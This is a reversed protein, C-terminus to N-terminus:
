GPWWKFQQQTFVFRWDICILYAINELPISHYIGRTVQNKATYVRYVAFFLTVLSEHWSSRHLEESYKRCTESITAIGIESKKRFNASSKRCNVSSTGFMESSQGFTMKIFDYLTAIWIFSASCHKVTTISTPKLKWTHISDFFKVM